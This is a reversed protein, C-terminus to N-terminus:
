RSPDLVLTPDDGYRASDDLWDVWYANTRMETERDRLFAQKVKELYEAGIGGRAIAAIEGEAAKLLPRVAEPACGFQISVQREAVPSRTFRGPARVGYVGSMDERMIERLRISLVEDLIFLDRQKDRTWPEEGHFAMAVFAKQEQGLAWTKEVAGGM